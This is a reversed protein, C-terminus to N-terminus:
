RQGENEEIAERMAAVTPLRIVDAQRMPDVVTQLEERSM